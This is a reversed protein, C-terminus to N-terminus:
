KEVENLAQEYRAFHDRWPIMDTPLTPRGAPM